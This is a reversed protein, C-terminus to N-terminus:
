SARRRDIANGADGIVTRDPKCPRGVIERNGHGAIAAPSRLLALLAVITILDRMSQAEQFQSADTDAGALDDGHLRWVVPPNRAPALM